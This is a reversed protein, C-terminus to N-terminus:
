LKEIRVVVRRNIKRNAEIVNNHEDRNKVKPQYEGYGVARIKKPDIGHEAFYRAVTGARLSSLEWNSAAIATNSVADDTHGEIIVVYNKPLKENKIAAILDNLVTEAKANLTPSNDAFLLQTNFDLVVGRNSYDVAVDVAVQNKSISTEVNQFVAKFPTDITKPVFGSAMAQTLEAVKDMKPESVMLIMVFFCMLLTIMDAYTFVWADLNDEEVRKKRRLRLSM